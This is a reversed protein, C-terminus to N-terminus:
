DANQVTRGHGNALFTTVSRPPLVIGEEQRMVPECSREFTTEYRIWGTTPAPQLDVTRSLEGPNVVVVVTRPKAGQPNRFATVLLREDEHEADIRVMGPRVFRYWNMSTYFKPTVHYDDGDTREAYVLAQGPKDFYLAWYCVVECNGVALAYHVKQAWILAEQYSGPEPGEKGVNCTEMFWLPRRAEQAMKWANAWREPDEHVADFPIEDDYLHTLLPAGVGVQAAKLAETYEELNYIHCVDPGLVRVDLGERRFREAVAGWARAYLDPEIICTPHGEASVDPENQISVADFELDYERKMGIVYAAWLEAFEDVMDERLQGWLGSRRNSDKMWAPPSWATPVITRVGRKRAARITVANRQETAAVPLRTWNFVAPDGNDNETELSIEGDQESGLARVRLVSVGLTEFILDFIEEEWREPPHIWGMTGGFGVIHQRTSDPRLTIRVPEEQARCPAACLLLAAAAALRVCVTRLRRIAPNSMPECFSRLIPPWM